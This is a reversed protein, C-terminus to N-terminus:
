KEELKKPSKTFLSLLLGGMVSGYITSNMPDSTIACSGSNCGIQQWYLYGAVTGIFIGIFTLKHKFLFEKM